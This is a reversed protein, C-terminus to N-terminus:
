ILNNESSKGGSETFTSLLLPHAFSALHLQLLTAPSLIHTWDFSQLVFHPHLHREPTNASAHSTLSSATGLKVDQPISRDLEHCNSSPNQKYSADPTYSENGLRSDRRPEKTETLSSM